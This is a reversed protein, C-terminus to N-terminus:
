VHAFEGHYKLAAAVYAAHAEEATDYRGLKIAHADVTIEARHKGSWADFHVGKFGSTNNVQKGRNRGNHAKSAERLNSRRDDLKSTNIHDIPGAVCLGMREAIVKHMYITGRGESKRGNRVAYRPAGQKDYGVLCWPWQVLYEYDIEDVLAVCGGALLIEPM